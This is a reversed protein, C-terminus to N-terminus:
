SHWHIFVYEKLDDFYENERSVDRISSSMVKIVSRYVFITLYEIVYRHGKKNAFANNDFM